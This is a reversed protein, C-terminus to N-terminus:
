LIHKRQKIGLGAEKLLSYAGEEDFKDMNESLFKLEGLNSTLFLEVYNPSHGYGCDSCDWIMRDSTITTKIYKGKSSALRCGGVEDESEYNPCACVFCNLNPINHCQKESQYCIRDDESVPERKSREAFSMFKVIAHVNELKLELGAAKLERFRDRWKQVEWKQSANLPM